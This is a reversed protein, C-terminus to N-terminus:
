EKWSPDDPIEEIPLGKFKKCLEQHCRLIALGPKDAVVTYGCVCSVYRLSPDKDIM